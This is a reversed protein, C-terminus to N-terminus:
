LKCHRLLFPALIVHQAFCLSAVPFAGPFNKESGDLDSRWCSVVIERTIQAVSPLRLSVPGLAKRNGSGGGIKGLLELNCKDFVSDLTLEPGETTFMASHFRVDM